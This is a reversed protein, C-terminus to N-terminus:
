AKYWIVYGQEKLDDLYTKVAYWNYYWVNTNRAEEETTEDDLTGDALLLSSTLAGVTEPNVLSYGNCLQYEILEIFCFEDTNVKDYENLWQKGEETLTIILNGSNDVNFQTNMDHTRQSNVVRKGSGRPHGYRRM